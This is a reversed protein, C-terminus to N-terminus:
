LDNIFGAIVAVVITQVKVSTLGGFRMYQQQYLQATTSELLSIRNKVTELVNFM